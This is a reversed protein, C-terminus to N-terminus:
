AVTAFYQQRVATCGSSHVIGTLVTVTKFRPSSLIM